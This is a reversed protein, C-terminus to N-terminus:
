ALNGILKYKINIKKKLTENRIRNPNVNLTIGNLPEKSAWDIMTEYVKGDFHDPWQWLTM